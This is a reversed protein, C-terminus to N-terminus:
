YNSNHFLVLIEVSVIIILFYFVQHVSIEGLNCQVQQCDGLLTVVVLFQVAFWPVVLQVEV